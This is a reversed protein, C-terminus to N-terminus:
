GRRIIKYNLRSEIDNFKKNDIRVSYEEGSTLIIKLLNPKVGDNKEIIKISDIEKLFIPKRNIFIYDNNIFIINNRILVVLALYSIGMILLLAFAKYSNGVINFLFIIWALLYLFLSFIPNIIFLFKYTFRSSINICNFISKLIEYYVITELYESILFLYGINLCILILKSIESINTITLLQVSSSITILIIISFIYKKHSKRM